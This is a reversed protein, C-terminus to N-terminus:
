AMRSSQEGRSSAAMFTAPRGRGPWLMGPYLHMRHAPVLSM